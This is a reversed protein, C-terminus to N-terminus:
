FVEKPTLEAVLFIALVGLFHKRRHAGINHKQFKAAFLIVHATKQFGAEQNIIKNMLSNIVLKNM